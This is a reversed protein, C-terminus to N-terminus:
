IDLHENLLVTIMVMVLGGGGERGGLAGYDYKTTVMVAISADPM